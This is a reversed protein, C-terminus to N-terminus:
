GLKAPAVKPAKRRVVKTAPGTPVAPAGTTARWAARLKQFMDRCGDAAAALARRATVEEGDEVGIRLIMEDRLPHPVSYGAYTVKPTADGQIHNEVLWTQLLNGLTHDHGRILFDFGIIRSDASSVTIESPLEKVINVYRSCM